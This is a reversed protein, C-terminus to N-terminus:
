QPNLEALLICFEQLAGADDVDEIEVTDDTEEAEDAWIFMNCTDKMKM